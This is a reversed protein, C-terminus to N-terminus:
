LEKENCDKIIQILEQMHAENKQEQLYRHKRVRELTTKPKLKRPRGRPRKPETQDM